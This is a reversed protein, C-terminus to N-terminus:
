GVWRELVEKPVAGETPLQRQQLLSGSAQCERVPNQQGRTALLELWWWVKEEQRRGRGGLWALQQQPAMGLVPVRQAKELGAGSNLELRTGYSAPGPCM